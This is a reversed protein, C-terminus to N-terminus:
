KAILIIIYIYCITLQHMERSSTIQTYSTYSATFNRKSVSRLGEKIRLLLKHDIIM